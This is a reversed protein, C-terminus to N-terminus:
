VSGPEGQNFGRLIEAGINTDAVKEDQKDQEMQGIQEATYGMERWIQKQPIGLKEKKTALAQIHAEENRTEPDAWITAISHEDPLGGTGFTNQLRAALKMVDEWSNGLGTQRQKVKHVLGAEATKLAEGSPYNGSLHFLHQPTKTVGSIHQIVMEIASLIGSVNAPEFQGVKIDSPNAGKIRWVGGPMVKFASAPAESGIVYRGPWGMTDLVMVLDVLTKNLIDQLSVVNALESRGMNDTGPKNRFHVMAPGVGMGDKMVWPLPWDEDGEDQARQWVGGRLIYKEIRDAYYLNMRTQDEEGLREVLWKKSLWDVKRTIPDYHPIVTDPEQFTFRPRNEVPDWDVLVYADGKKTAETHVVIQTNDMRNVEWMEQTFETLAEDDAASFGEVRLREAQSDVVVECFNDRVQLEPPLFSKLRRTLKVSQDGDYYNKFVNYDRRLDQERKDVWEKLVASMPGPDPTLLNRLIVVAAERIASSVM